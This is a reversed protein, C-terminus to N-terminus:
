ISSIIEKLEFYKRADDIKFDSVNLHFLCNNNKIEVIMPKSFSTEYKFIEETLDYLLNFNIKLNDLKSKRIPDYTEGILIIKLDIKSTFSNNNLLDLNLDICSECGNVPILYYITHENKNESPFTNTIYKKFGDIYEYDKKVKTNCSMMIFFYSFMLFNYKM